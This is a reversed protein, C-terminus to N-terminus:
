EMTRRIEPLMQQVALTVARVNVNRGRAAVADVVKGSM